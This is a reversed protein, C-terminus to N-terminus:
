LSVKALELNFKESDTSNFEMDRFITWSVGKAKVSFNIIKEPTLVNLRIIVWKVETM